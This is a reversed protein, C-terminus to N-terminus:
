EHDRSEQPEWGSGITREFLSLARSYLEVNNELLYFGHGEGAVFMQDHPVRAAELAAAMAHFQNFHAQQDEAGHAIFLEARIRDAHHVPSQARLRESDTGLARDLYARGFGVRRAINGETKARELDYVGVFAFACRYLDPERIISMMASYGGYSAGSICVRDPHAIGETIAWHVGDTLDDQMKDGWHLFGAEEFQQGYGGSGRFNVQLVAFGRSAMAQVWPNWTWYDFVGHPGGHVEVVLPLDQDQGNPPLTLFAALELGDRTTFNVPTMAAMREVPVWSRAAALESLAMTETDLLMFVGPELDSSLRVAALRGDDTFSTLLVNYNPLSQQLAEVLQAVSDDPDIWRAEPRPTNFVGGIIRTANQNWVTSLLEYRPDILLPEIRGSALHLRHLGMKTQDRTSVYAYEGSEDFSHFTAMGGFPNDFRQWDHDASQRFAFEHEFRDNIGAAFLVEGQANTGLSGRSLPSVAVRTGRTERNINMRRAVPREQDHSREIVLVHSPDEPLRHIIEVWRWVMAGGRPESHILRRASGDANTAFVRGTPLPTALRGRQRTSTMLLRENTAWFLGGLHEDREPSFQSKVTVDPFNRIDLIALGTRDEKPVTVALFDGGPSLQFTEFEAHRFFIELPLEDAAQPPSSQITLVLVILAFRSMMM